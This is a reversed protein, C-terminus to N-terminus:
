RRKGFMFFLIVAGIIWPLYSSMTSAAPVVGNVAQAGPATAGTAPRGNILPAVQGAVQNAAGSLSLISQLWSPTASQSTGTISTTAGAANVTPTANSTLLGNDVVDYPTQNTVIPSGSGGSLQLYDSVTGGGDIANIGADYFPDSTPDMFIKESNGRRGFL